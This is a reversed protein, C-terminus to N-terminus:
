VCLTTLIRVAFLETQGKDSLFDKDATSLFLKHYLEYFGADASTQHSFGSRCALEVHPMASNKEENIFIMFGSDLTYIHLNPLFAEKAPLAHPRCILIVALMAKLFRRM